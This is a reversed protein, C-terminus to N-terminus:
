LRAARAPPRPETSFLAYFTAVGWADAPPVTLRECIYNLAGESIWGVRSQVAHLAPLLLHRQARRTGASLSTRDRDYRARRGGLPHRRASCRTSPTASRPRPQDDHLNLDM